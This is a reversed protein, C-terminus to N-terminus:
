VGTQPARLPPHGVRAPPTNFLPASRRERAAIYVGPFRRRAPRPRSLADQSPAAEVSAFPRGPAFVVFALAAAVVVAIM